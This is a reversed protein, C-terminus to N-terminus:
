HLFRWIRTNWSCSCCLLSLLLLLRPKGNHLVESLFEILCKEGEVYKKKYFITILYKFHMCFKMVNGLFCIKARVIKMLGM